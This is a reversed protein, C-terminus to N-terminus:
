VLVMQKIEKDDIVMYLYAMVASLCAASAYIVHYYDCGMIKPNEGKLEELPGPLSMSVEGESSSNEQDSM